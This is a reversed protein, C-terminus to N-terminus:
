PTVQGGDEGNAILAPSPADKSTTASRIIAFGWGHAELHKILDDSTYIRTMLNM